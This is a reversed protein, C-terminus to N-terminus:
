AIVKSSPPNPHYIIQFSSFALMGRLSDSHLVLVYFCHIFSFCLISAQWAAMLCGPNHHVPHSQPQNYTCLCKMNMIREIDTFGVPFSSHLPITKIISRKWLSLLLFLFLLSSPRLKNRREGCIDTNVDGDLESTQFLLM